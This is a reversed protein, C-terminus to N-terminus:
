YIVAEGSIDGSQLKTLLEDVPPVEMEPYQDGV